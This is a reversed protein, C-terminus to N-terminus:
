LMGGLLIYIIVSLFNHMAHVCISSFINNTKYYLLAFACGLSSYPFLYLLDCVSSISSAIHLFGFIFGSVFVYVWKNNIAERISKRFTIEEVIPAYICTCFVMLLPAVDIYSRVVEENNAISRGLGFVIIINSVVMIIFGVLWYKFSTEFNKGFNKFYSKFDRILDRRYICFYITLLLFDFISMYVLYMTQSMGNPNLNFIGFMLSSFFLVLLILGISKFINFVSDKM